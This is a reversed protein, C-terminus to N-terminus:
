GAIALRTSPRVPCATVQFDSHASYVVIRAEPALKRIQAVAEAPVYGHELELDLVLLDPRYTQLTWPLDAGRRVDGVVRYTGVRELHEKLAQRIGPHDDIVLVKCPHKM